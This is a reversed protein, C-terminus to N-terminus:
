VLERVRDGRHLLDDLVRAVAPHEDEDVVLVALVLAVEDDGGLHARRVRDVEHRRMAPPQDAQGEGAFPEVREPQRQHRGRVRRAVLGGEGHRDLRALADRGADGGVVAGAGDRHRDVRARTRLVDRRRAVDERQAGAVAADQHAGPMGLRGDVDGPEGPEVGRAHDALDHVLVARHRAQGVEDGDGLAVPQLDAGDGVQDGVAAAVVVQHALRRDLGDGGLVAAGPLHPDVGVGGAAALVDHEGLAIEGRGLGHQHAHVRHVRELVDEAHMRPAAVLKAVRHARDGGLAAADDHQQAVHPRLELDAVVDRRVPQPLVADARLDQVREAQM